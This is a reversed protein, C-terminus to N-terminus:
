HFPFLLFAALDWLTHSVANLLLSRYRLYLWGWFLGCVGAALVLIPNGSALHISAYVATALLWGAQRGLSDELRRQLFGRWFLEEGPGIVIVMLLVIRLAPAQEKFAYVASINSAAGAFIYRSIENGFWFVVYLVAASLAGLAIKRVPHDKIDARLSHRWHVDVVQVVALLILLNATMWWWFDFPGVGQTVFLPVFLALALLLVAFSVISSKQNIIKRKRILL